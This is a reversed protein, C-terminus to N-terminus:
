SGRQNRHLAESAPGMVGAAVPAPAPTGFADPFSGALDRLIATCFRATAPQIMAGQLLDHSERAASDGSTDVEKEDVLEALAFGSAMPEHRHPTNEDAM